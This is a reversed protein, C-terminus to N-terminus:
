LRSQLGLGPEAEGWDLQMIEATQEQNTKPTKLCLRTTETEKNPAWAARNIACACLERM